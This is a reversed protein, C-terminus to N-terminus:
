TSWHATDTWKSKKYMFSPNLIGSTCVNPESSNELMSREGLVPTVDLNSLNSSQLTIAKVYFPVVPCKWTSHVKTSGM